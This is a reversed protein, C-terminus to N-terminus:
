LTIILPEYAVDYNEDIRSVNYITSDNFTFPAHDGSHIHGCFVYKPQKDYLAQSLENSGFPGYNTQLSFDVTSNAFHPPAHTILIDLDDPIKSFKRVLKDHDSEFAWSYSIIPVWPTGYIKLGLLEIGTDYLMHANAPFEIRWDFGRIRSTREYELSMDHNGPIFVFQTDPYSAMWLVFKTQLWKKQDYINWKTFGKLPAIDGAIIVIDCGSPDLEELHGHLDSTALLKM